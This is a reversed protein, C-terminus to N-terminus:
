TGCAMAEVVPLGFGEFLSPFVLALAGRYLAPLDAAPVHGLVHVREQAAAVAGRDFTHGTLVLHLDPDDIRAFAELLREHNKHPWFNAPYLVYREPLGPATPGDPTFRAHDVGLHIAHVREPAVGLREVIGRRAHESITIVADAGRAADDYAWRRFRREASSFMAPLEHHQVDLLSVVRAGAAIRPVPVTVPYHVVAFDEGRVHPWRRGVHMAVFRTANSDGARYRREVRVPWGECSAGVHRNGIVVLDDFGVERVGRLLGRAYTEAGGVRGPFLTLLSLAVTILAVRQPEPGERGGRRAGRAAPERRPGPARRHPGPAPCPGPAPRLAAVHRRLLAAAPGPRLRLGRLVARQAPVRDRGPRRPAGARRALDGPRPPRRRQAVVAARLARAPPAPSRARPRLAAPPRRRRHGSDPHTRGDAGAM